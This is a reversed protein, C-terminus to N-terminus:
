ASMPSAPLIPSVGHIGASSNKPVNVFYRFAVILKTMDTQRDTQRDTDTQRHRDTDTQRDTQRDTQTWGDTWM